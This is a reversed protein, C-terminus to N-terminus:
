THLVNMVCTSCLGTVAYSISFEIVKAPLGIFAAGRRTLLLEAAARLPSPVHDGPRVAMSRKVIVDLPFDLVVAGAAACAYSLWPPLGRQRGAHETSFFTCDFVANRLGAGHLRRFGGRSGLISAGSAGAVGRQVKAWEAPAACLGTIYGSCASGIAIAKDRPMGSVSQVAQTSAESVLFMPGRTLVKQAVGAGAGRYFAAALAPGHKGASVHRIAESLTAARVQQNMKLLDFPHAALTGPAAGLAGVAGRRLCESADMSAGSRPAGGLAGGLAGGPHLSSRGVSCALM